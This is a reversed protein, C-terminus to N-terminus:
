KQNKPNKKLTFHTVLISVVICIIGISLIIIPAYASTSPVNVIETPEDNQNISAEETNEKIKFPDNETGSGTLELNSNLYVVPYIEVTIGQNPNQNSPRDNFEGTEGSFIYQILLESDYKPTIIYSNDINLYNNVQCSFRDQDYSLGPDTVTCSTANLDAKLVDTLTMLGVNGNWVYKGENAQQTKIVEDINGADWSAPGINFNSSVIQNQAEQKLSNYYDNNLYINLNSDFLVTGKYKGNEFESPKGVMNSTASWVNCGQTSNQCLTGGKGQSGKDRHNTEDFTQNDISTTRIIKITGDKEVSIVRWLEGNFEIYNDPNQGRYIYRGQIYSDEYLGEGETVLNQVLYDKANTQSAIVTSPIVITLLTILIINLKKM